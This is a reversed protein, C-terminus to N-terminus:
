FRAALTLWIKDTDTAFGDAKYFAAKVSGTLYKNLKKSVLFDWETGFDTDGVDSKFDHYIAKLLLGKLTGETQVKYSASVFIDQLGNAPTALFKDAWGNFKHLTALPTKFSTGNDAGLLEYDLGFTFGGASANLGAHWYEASYDLPNDKYDSQNAYEIQYGVKMQESVATKGAFRIGITSSSLGFVQSDNLDVFYGYASLKGFGFGGYSVNLVHTNTDLNGFPHDKGFIRNVNWSYSYIATIDKIPTLIGTVSDYTQDNQRWGVTGIFRQNDLNIGQRGARLTGWGAAYQFYAQNLETTDPDAVVPRTVNGNVTNNYTENGVVMTNTGEIYGSFGNLSATRYWLKTLLTSATAKKSFGDQEVSELRYRFNVGAEGKEFLETLNQAEEAIAGSSALLAAITVLYKHPSKIM